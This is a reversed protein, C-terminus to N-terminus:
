IKKQPDIEGSKNQAPAIGCITGATKTQLIDGGLLPFRFFDCGKTSISPLCAFPCSKRRFLDFLESSTLFFVQRGNHSSVLDRKGLDSYRFTQALLSQM